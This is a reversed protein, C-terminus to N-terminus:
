FWCVASGLTFEQFIVMQTAGDVLVHLGESTDILEVSRKSSAVCTCNIEDRNCKIEVLIIDTLGTIETRGDAAHL